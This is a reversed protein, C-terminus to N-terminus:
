VNLLRIEKELGLTYNYGADFIEKAKKFEFLGYNSLLDPEIFLNCKDAKSKVTNYIAMHFVRDLIVPINMEKQMANLPNVHVGIITDCKGAIAEVPFNNLIGGDAYLTDNISVPEFIGPVASSATIAMAVDGSSFYETKATQLNTAAAYFPLNLQDFTTEGLFLRCTNTVARTNLLGDKHWSLGPFHFIKQKLVIELMKDVSYGAAYFAGVLSGASTGSIIQPKIGFEELAKIVGLHAIGRGGGGSLVLGIKM